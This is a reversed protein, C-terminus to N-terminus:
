VYMNQNYSFSHASCRVTTLKTSARACAYCIFAAAILACELPGKAKHLAAATRKVFGGAPSPFTAEGPQLAEILSQLAENTREAAITHLPWARGLSYDSEKYISIYVFIYITLFLACTMFFTGYRVITALAGKGFAPFVNDLRGISLMFSAAQFQLM